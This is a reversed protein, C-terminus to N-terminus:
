SASWPLPMRSVIVAALEDSVAVLALEGDEADLTRGNEHALGLAVAAGLAEDLRQIRQSADRRCIGSRAERWPGVVV